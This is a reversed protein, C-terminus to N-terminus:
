DWIQREPVSTTQKMDNPTQGDEMDITKEKSFPSYVHAKVGLISAIKQIIITKYKFYNIKM